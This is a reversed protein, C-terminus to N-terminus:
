AFGNKATRYPALLTRERSKGSGVTVPEPACVRKNLGEQQWIFPKVSAILRTGNVLRKNESNAMAKGSVRRPHPCYSLRKGRDNRLCLMAKDLRGHALINAETHKLVM